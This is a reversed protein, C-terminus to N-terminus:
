ATQRRRFWGLLGLGSGFLYVAAPVPVTSVTAGAMLSRSFSGEFSEGGTVAIVGGVSTLSAAFDLVLFNNYDAGFYVGQGFTALQTPLNGVTNGNYTSVAFGSSAPLQASRIDVNSYLETEADYDFQGFLITGELLATDAFVADQLYWTVPIAFAQASGLLLVLAILKKM